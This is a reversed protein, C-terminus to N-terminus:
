SPKFTGNRWGRMSSEDLVEKFFIHGCIIKFGVIGM